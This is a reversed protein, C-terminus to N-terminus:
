RWLRAYKIAERDPPTRQHERIREFAAIARGYQEIAAQLHGARQEVLLRRESEPREISLEKELAEASLRYAHGLRYAVHPARPDEPYRELAETLREIASPYYVEPPNPLDHVAA